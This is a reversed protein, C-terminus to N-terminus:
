QSPEVWRWLIPDWAGGGGDLVPDHFAAAAAALSPLDPWPLSEEAALRLYRAAWSAPPPPLSRPLAHTARFAFTADLATRLSSAEFRTNAALLALDPLDKLRSNEVGPARPLTYAHLKEAAHSGIPYARV